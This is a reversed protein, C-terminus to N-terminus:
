AKPFIIEGAVNLIGISFDKGKVVAGNIMRSARIDPHEASCVCAVGGDSVGIGDKGVFGAGIRIVDEGDTNGRVSGNWSALSLASPAAVM